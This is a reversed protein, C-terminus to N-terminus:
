TYQDETESAAAMCTRIAPDAGTQSSTICRRNILFKTPEASREQDRIRTRRNVFIGNSGDFLVRTQSHDCGM